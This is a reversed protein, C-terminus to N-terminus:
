EGQLMSKPYKVEPYDEHPGALLKSEIGRLHQNFFELVYRNVLEAGRAGDISGAMGIQGILPSYLALDTFNYHGTGEIYIVRGGDQQMVRDMLKLELERNELITDFQKRTFQLAKLEEDTIPTKRYKAQQENVKMFEQSEIFMFPKKMDDRGKTEFVSGDMNVGAKIRPNSYVAKFAAAGGFSHGMMGINDMDLKGKFKSVIAGSNLKELQYVVFAADKNWVQLIARSDEFFRDQSQVTLFGTVRGDPFATTVTSYTHDIAFVIYGHSALNEAQSTHLIRGVGMGHSLLVVPYPDDAPLLDAHAYANARSYKWYDLAAAPLGLYGSYAQMYTHFLKKDQPFVTSKESSGGSEAAPYWVQVMLERKDGKQETFTEERHTDIFHFTETGVRFEGSPTPLHFVPLLLSLAVSGGLLVVFIALITYRLPKRVKRRGSLAIVVLLAAVSYAPLIQWRYGEFLLQAALLAGCAIGAIVGATRNTEKRILLMILVAACSAVLLMELGRM